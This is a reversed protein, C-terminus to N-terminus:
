VRDAWREILHAAARHALASATFTPNVAGSSPFLSPGGIFLNPIDHIAGFADTVSQAPDRGMCAGGLLHMGVM